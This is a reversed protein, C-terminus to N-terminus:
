TVLTASFYGEVSSSDELLNKLYPFKNNSSRLFMFGSNFCHTVYYSLLVSYILLRKTSPMIIQCRGFIFMPKYFYCIIVNLLM